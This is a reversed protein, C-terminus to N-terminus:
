PLIEISLFDILEQKTPFEPNPIPLQVETIQSIDREPGRLVVIGSPDGTTDCLFYTSGLPFLRACTSSIVNYSDLFNCGVIGESEFVEVFFNNPLFIRLGVRQNIVTLQHYSPGEGIFQNPPLQYLLVEFDRDRLRGGLAGYLPLDTSGECRPASKIDRPLQFRLQIFEGRDTPLVQQASATSMALLIFLLIRISM